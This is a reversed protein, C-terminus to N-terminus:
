DKRYELNGSLLITSSIGGRMKSIQYSQIINLIILLYIVIIENNLCDCEHKPVM